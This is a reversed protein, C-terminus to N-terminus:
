NAILNHPSVHKANPKGNFRKCVEESSGATMVNRFAARDVNTPWVKFVDDPGACLSSANDTLRAFKNSFPEDGLSRCLDRTAALAVQFTTMRQQGDIVQRADIDGTRTE